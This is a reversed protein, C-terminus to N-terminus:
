LSFTLFVSINEGVWVFAARSLQQFEAGKLLIVVALLVSILHSGDVGSVRV